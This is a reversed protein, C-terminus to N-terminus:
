PLAVSSMGVHWVCAGRAEPTELNFEAVGAALQSQYISLFRPFGSGVGNSINYRLYEKGVKPVKGYRRKFGNKMEIVM